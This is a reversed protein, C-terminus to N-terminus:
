SDDKETHCIFCGNGNDSGTAMEDYNWRLMDPRNSGHARHCSICMVQDTGPTVLSTPGAYGSLDPRAVPAEPNYTTYEAYEGDEPLAIDVPHRLWPSGTGVGAPNKLAHLDGHCGCGSDSISGGFAATEGQYENHDTSSVTKQWDDDEIGKVGYLFRYWGGDGDVVMASDDAHHKPATHCDRCILVNGAREITFPIGPTGPAFGFKHCDYCDTISLTNNSGIHRGVIHPLNSDAGAIGRVNHGLSDDAQSVMWYFNGGALPYSPQAANNVIPLDSSAITSVTESSSLSHCGVCSSIMLKEQPGDLEVPDGDQSNHM